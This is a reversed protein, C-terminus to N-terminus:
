FLYTGAEVIRTKGDLVLEAKVPVTIEYRVKGDKHYWRSAVM